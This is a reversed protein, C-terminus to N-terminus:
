RSTEYFDSLSIPGAVIAAFAKRTRDENWAKVAEAPQNRGDGRYGCSLCVVHPPREDTPPTVTHVWTSRCSPCPLPAAQAPKPTPAPEARGQWVVIGDADSGSAPIPGQAGCRGCCIVGPDVGSYQALYPAAAGCFPCPKLGRSPDLTRFRQM